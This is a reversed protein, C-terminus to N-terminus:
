ARTGTQTRADFLCAGLAKVEEDIRAEMEPSAAKPGVGGNGEPMEWATAGLKDKAFGWQTVMRRAINTVQQLDGSAGTTIEEEGYVVQESRALTLAFSLVRRM